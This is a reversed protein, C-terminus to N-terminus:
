WDLHKDVRRAHLNSGRDAAVCPQERDCATACFVRAAARRAAIEALRM